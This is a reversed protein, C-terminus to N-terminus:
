RAMEPKYDINNKTAWTKVAHCVACRVMCKGSEIENVLRTISSRAESISLRKEATHDLQLAAANKNYGCDCCGKNLKYETLWLRVKTASNRCSALHKSYKTVDQKTRTYSHPRHIRNKCRKSCYIANYGMPKPTFTEDCTPCIRPTLM